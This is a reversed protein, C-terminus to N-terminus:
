NSGAWLQEGCPLISILVCRDFLGNSPQVSAAPTRAQDAAASTRAQDAAASTRAQDAAAPAQTQHAAGVAAAPIERRAQDIAVRIRAELRTLQDRASRTGAM